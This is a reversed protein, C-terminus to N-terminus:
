FGKLRPLSDRLFVVYVVSEVYLVRRANWEAKMHLTYVQDQGDM